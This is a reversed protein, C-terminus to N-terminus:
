WRFNLCVEWCGSIDQYEWNEPRLRGLHRNNDRNLLSAGGRSVGSGLIVPEIYRNVVVALGLGPDGSQVDVSSVEWEKAGSRERVVDQNNIM